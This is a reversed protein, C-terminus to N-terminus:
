SACEGAVGHFILHTFRFPKLYGDFEVISACANNLLCGVYLDCRALTHAHYSATSCCAYCRHSRMTFGIIQRRGLDPDHAHGVLRTKNEPASGDRARPRYGRFFLGTPPITYDGNHGDNPVPPVNFAARCSTVPLRKSRSETGISASGLTGRRHESGPIKMGPPKMGRGSHDRACWDFNLRYHFIRSGPGRPARGSHRQNKLPASVAFARCPRAK